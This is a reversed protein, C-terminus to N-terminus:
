SGRRDRRISAPGVPSLPAGAPLCMCAQRAKRNPERTHPGSESFSQEARASDHDEYNPKQRCGGYGRPREAKLSLAAVKADHYQDKERRGRTDDHNLLENMPDPESWRLWTSM